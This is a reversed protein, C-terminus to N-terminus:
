CFHIGPINGSVYLRGTRVSLLRILQRNEQFVAAEVEQVGLSRYLFQKVKSLYVTRQKKTEKNTNSAVAGATPWSRRM